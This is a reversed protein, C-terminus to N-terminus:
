LTDAGRERRLAAPTKGYRSKCVKIFHTPDVFGARRGIESTTVQDFLRSRLMREATQIRADILRRGFTDGHIALIRHLTRVSLGLSAAVDMATLQLESSRQNICDVIRVHMDRYRTQEQRPATIESTALALLAGLHDTLISSSLPATVAREPAMQSAYASLVKGWGYDGNIRKGVVASPNPLWTEVWDIPLGKSLALADDPWHFRQPHRSDSLVLDGSRLSVLTEGFAFRWSCGIGVILYYEEKEERCIDRRTRYADQASGSISDVRMSGIQASSIEACFGARKPSDGTVHILQRCLIDMYAEFRRAPAYSHTTWRFIGLGEDVM